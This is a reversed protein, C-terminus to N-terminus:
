SAPSSIKRATETIVQQLPKWIQFTYRGLYYISYMCIYKEYDIDIMVKLTNIM